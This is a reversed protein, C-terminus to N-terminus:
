NFNLINRQNLNEEDFTQNTNEFYSKNLKKNIPRDKDEKKFNFEDKFSFLNKYNYELSFSNKKNTNKIQNKNRLIVDKNKNRNINDNNQEEDSIHTINNTSNNNSEPIEGKNRHKFYYSGNHRDKNTSRSYDFNLLSDQIIDSANDNIKENRYINKNEANRNPTKANCDNEYEIEIIKKKINKQNISVKSYNLNSNTKIKNILNNHGIGLISKTHEILNNNSLSRSYYNYSNISKGKPLYTNSNYEKKSNDIETNSNKM